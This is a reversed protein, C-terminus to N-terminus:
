VNWLGTLGPCGLPRDGEGSREGLEVAVMEESLDRPPLLLFFSCSKWVFQAPAIHGEVSIEFQSGASM